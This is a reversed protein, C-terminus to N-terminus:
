HQTAHAFDNMVRDRFNEMSSLIKLRCVVVVVLWILSISHVGPCTTSALTQSCTPSRPCHSHAYQFFKRAEADSLEPHLSENLWNVDEASRCPGLSRHSITKSLLCVTAADSTQTDVCCAFSFDLLSQTAPHNPTPQRVAAGPHGRLAHALLARHFPRSERAAGPVRRLVDGCVQVLWLCGVVEFVLRPAYVDCRKPPPFICALPAEGCSSGHSGDGLCTSM